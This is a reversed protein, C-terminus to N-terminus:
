ITIAAKGCLRGPASVTFSGAMAGLYGGYSAAQDAPCELLLGYCGQETDIFYVVLEQLRGDDMESGRLETVAEVHALSVQRVPEFTYEDEDRQFLEIVDASKRGPYYRVTLEVDDNSYARWVIM